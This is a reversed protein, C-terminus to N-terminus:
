ERWGMGAARSPDLWGWARSWAVVHYTSGQSRYVFPEAEDGLCLLEAVVACALDECDGWGDRALQAYTKWEENPDQRRYVIAGSRIGALVSPVAEGAELARQIQEVNAAVLGILLSAATQPDVKVHVIM